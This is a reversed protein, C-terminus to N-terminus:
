AKRKKGKEIDAYFSPCQLSLLMIQIKGHRQKIVKQPKKIFEKTDDVLVGFDRM